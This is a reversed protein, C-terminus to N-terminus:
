LIVYFEPEFRSRSQEGPYGKPNCIVRTDGIYYDHHFHTHGHIWVDPESNLIDNDLNSVYAGNSPDGADVSAISQFSPGHHTIVCVRQGANKEEDIKSFIYEKSTLFMQYMDLARAKMLYPAKANGTRIVKYDNMIGEAHLMTMPNNNDYDTWLTAGIFSVDGRRYIDNEMIIVNHLEEDDIVQQIKSRATILSGRYYEHNGFVYLVTHFRDSLDPLLQKYTYPKDAVAIDGAIVLITDSDDDCKPIPYFEFEMHLDSMIRIKM